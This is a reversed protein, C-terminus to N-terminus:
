QVKVTVNVIHVERNPSTVVGVRAGRLGAGQLVPFVESKVFELAYSSDYPEGAKLKWRETM